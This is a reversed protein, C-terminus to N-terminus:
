AHTPESRGDGDALLDASWEEEFDPHLGTVEEWEGGEIYDNLEKEDNAPRLLGTVADVCWAGIPSVQEPPISGHLIPYFDPHGPLMLWM